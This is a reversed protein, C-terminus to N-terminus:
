WRGFTLLGRFGMSHSRAPTHFPGNLSVNQTFTGQETPRWEPAQTM